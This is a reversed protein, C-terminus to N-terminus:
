DDYFRESKPDITLQLKLRKVEALLAAIDSYTCHPSHPRLKDDLNTAIPVGCIRCWGGATIRQEHREKIQKLEKDTM